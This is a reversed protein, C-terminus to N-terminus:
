TVLVLVLIGILILSLTSITIIHQDSLSLHSAQVDSQASRWPQPLWAAGQHVASTAHRSQQLFTAADTRSQQTSTTVEPKAAGAGVSEQAVAAQAVGCGILAWYFALRAVRRSAGM